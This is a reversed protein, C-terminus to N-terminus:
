GFGCFRRMFSVRKSAMSQKTKESAGSRWGKANKIQPEALERRTKPSPRYPLVEIGGYSEINLSPMPVPEVKPLPYRSALKPDGSGATPPTLSSARRRGRVPRYEAGAHERYDDSEEASGASVREASDERKRKPPHHADPPTIPPLSTGRQAQPNSPPSTPGSISPASVPRSSEGASSSYLRVNPLVPSSDYLIPSFRRIDAHDAGSSSYQAENSPAQPPGPTGAIPRLSAPAGEIHSAFLALPSTGSPMQRAAHPPVIHWSAPDPPRWDPGDMPVLGQRQREGWWDSWSVSPRASFDQIQPLSLREPGRAPYQSHSPGQQASYGVTERSLEIFSHFPPTWSQRDLPPPPPPGLPALLQASIDSPTRTGGLGHVNSGSPAFPLQENLQHHQM